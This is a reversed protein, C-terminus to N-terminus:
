WGSGWRGYGGAILHYTQIDERWFKVLRPAENIQPSTNILTHGADDQAPLKVKRLNSSMDDGEGARAM